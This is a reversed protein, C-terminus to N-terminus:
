SMAQAHMSLLELESQTLPEVECMRAEVEYPNRWYAEHHSFGEARGILYQKIYSAYLRWWGLRQVQYIHQLEHRALRASVDTKASAYLIFPYLTIAEIGWRKLFSM